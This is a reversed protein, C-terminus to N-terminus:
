FSAQSVSLPSSQDCDAYDIPCRAAITYRCKSYIEVIDAAHTSWQRPQSRLASKSATCVSNLTLGGSCYLPLGTSLPENLFEKMKSYMKSPSFRNVYTPKLYQVGLTYTDQLNLPTSLIPPPTPPPYEIM